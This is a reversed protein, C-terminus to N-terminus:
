GTINYSVTTNGRLRFSYSYNYYIIGNKNFHSTYNVSVSKGNIVFTATPKYGTATVTVTTGERIGKGSPNAACGSATVSYYKAKPVTIHFCVDRYEESPVIVPTETGNVTAKLDRAFVYGEKAKCNAFMVAYDKGGELKEGAEVRRGTSGDPLSSDGEGLAFVWFAGYEFAPEEGKKATVITGSVKAADAGATMNIVNFDLSGIVRLPAAPCVWVDVLTFCGEEDQRCVLDAADSAGSGTVNATFMTDELLGPMQVTFRVEGPEGPDNFVYDPSVAELGDTGNKFWTVECAADAGDLLYAYGIDDVPVGLLVSDLTVDIVHDDFVPYVWVSVNTANEGEIPQCILDSRTCAGNTLLTINEETVTGDIRLTFNVEQIDDPSKLVAGSPLPDYGEDGMGIFAVDYEVSAGDLKLDHGIGDIPKGFTLSGLTVDIVHDTPEPAPPMTDGIAPGLCVEVSLVFSEPYTGEPFLDAYVSSTALMVGTVGYYANDKVVNSSTTIDFLAEIDEPAMGDKVGYDSPNAIVFKLWYYAHNENYPFFYDDDAVERYAGEPVYDDAYAFRLDMVNPTKGDITVSVDMEGATKGTEPQQVRIDLSHKAPPEPACGAFLAATLVLVLLLAIGKKM